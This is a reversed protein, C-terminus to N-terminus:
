FFIPNSIGHNDDSETKIYTPYAEIDSPDNDTAEEVFSPQLGSAFAENPGKDSLSEQNLLNASTAAYPGPASAHDSSLPGETPDAVFSSM